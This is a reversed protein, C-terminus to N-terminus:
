GESLDPTLGQELEREWKDILEDNTAIKEGLVEQLHEIEHMLKSTPREEYELQMDFLRTYLDTYVELALEGSSMDLFEKTPPTQYKKAWWTKFFGLESKAQEKAKRKLQKTDM